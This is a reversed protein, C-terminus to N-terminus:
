RTALRRRPAEPDDDARHRPSPLHNAAPRDGPRRADEFRKARREQIGNKEIRRALANETAVSLMYGILPADLSGAIYTQLRTQEHLGVKANALLVLEARCKPDREFKAQYYIRAAEILSTQGSRAVRKLEGTQSDVTVEDPHVPGTRFTSLYQELKNPDPTSDAGFHELFAGFAPALEAFVETNGLALWDRLLEPLETNQLFQGVVKSSWSAFTFWSINEPGLMRAFGLSLEHYGQTILLNRLIPQGSLHTVRQWDDAVPRLEESARGLGHKSEESARGLVRKSTAEM